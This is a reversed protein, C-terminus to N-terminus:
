YIIFAILVLYAVGNVLALSLGVRRNLREWLATRLDGAHYKYHMEVKHHVAAAVSKFIVSVVIFAIIPGLAWLWLPVKLTFVGLLKAVLHGLPVAVIAGVIIGVLSFGVRIAGQRFGMGALSALLLVSLIWITM